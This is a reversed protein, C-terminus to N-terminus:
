AAAGSRGLAVADAIRAILLDPDFPKVVLDAAGAEIARARWDKEAHGSLVLIPVPIARTSPVKRFERILDLGDADPMSFDTLVLDPDFAHHVGEMALAVSEVCLLTAGAMQLLACILERCDPDDEVVLVRAGALPGLGGVSEGFLATGPVEPRPADPGKRAHRVPPSVRAGAGRTRGSRRHARLPRRPPLAQPPPAPVRRGAGAGQGRPQRAGDHGGRASKRGGGPGVRSDARHALLRDRGADRYRLPPRRASPGQGCCVGRGGVGRRHRRRGAPDPPVRDPRALGGPRRGGRDTARGAPHGSREDPGRADGRRAQCRADPAPDGYLDRGPRARREGGDGDGRAGGVIHKVIALGLGLGGAKTDAISAQRFREFVFPLAEARIGSGSDTVTLVAHPGEQALRVVVRGERPTFKLSNTLLNTVVQQLRVPDGSIPAAIPTVVVELAVGNAAATPRASDVSAQVLAPFDLPAMELDLKGSVIRSVDLLDAILRNQVNLNREITEVARRILDPSNQGEKLIHVWGVIATLPTRLEHSLTAFFIDKMRAAEELERKAVSLEEERERLLTNARVVDEFTGLLLRLIQERDARVDITKGNFVAAVGRSRADDERRRRPSAAVDKPRQAQQALLSRLRGVLVDPEYPKRIFSDAGVELAQVIEQPERLTTVLVVPIECLAPDAKIMRCLDFGSLGPMLVDSVVVDCPAVALRALATQADPAVEVGFGEEELILRLLRAQTPSDEVVLVCQGSMPGAGRLSRRRGHETMAAGVDDLPLVFDALGANVAAAPMGYVIATAESEAITRGGAKRIARLGDVGDRGMGTLIVALASRGFAAAVSEFLM